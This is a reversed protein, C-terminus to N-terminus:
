LLSCYEEYSLDKGSHTRFQDSQLKVQRLEMIPHVANQLLTCQLDESLRNPSLEHYKRVQDQWHLIFAHTLGKWKGDGLMTTNIYSLLASANMTAKASKMAYASLERYSAPADFSSQYHRVLAKGKNTLLTKEFVAYMFKQKEFFLDRAEQNLPIYSPDLVNSIDQARAQAAM